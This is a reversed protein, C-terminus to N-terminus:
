QDLSIVSPTGYVVSIDLVTPWPSMYGTNIVTTYALATSIPRRFTLRVTLRRLDNLRTRSARATSDHKINNDRDKIIWQQLYIYINYINVYFEDNNM